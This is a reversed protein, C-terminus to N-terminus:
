NSNSVYYDYIRQRIQAFEADCAALLDRFQQDKKLVETYNSPAEDKLKDFSSKLFIEYPDWDVGLENALMREIITAIFHQRYYPCTEGNEDVMISGPDNSDLHKKDWSDVQQELVSYEKCLIAEILEHIGVLFEYLNNGMDSVHIVLDNGIFQWDGVTDYRQESHPITEIKIM